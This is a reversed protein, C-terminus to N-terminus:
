LEALKAVSMESLESEHKDVAAYIGTFTSEVKSLAADTEAKKAVAQEEAVALTKEHITKLQAVVDADGIDAAAAAWDIEPLPTALSKKFGAVAGINAM